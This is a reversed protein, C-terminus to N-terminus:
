FRFAYRLELTDTDVDGFTGEGSTRYYRVGATQQPTFDYNIGLGLVTGDDSASGNTANDTKLNAVGAFILGSVTESFYTGVGLTVAVFTDFDTNGTNTEGNLSAAFLEGEIFLSGNLNHRYGAFVGFGNGDATITLNEFETDFSSIAGGM